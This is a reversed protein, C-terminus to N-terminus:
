AGFDAYFVPIGFARTSSAWNRAAAFAAVLDTPGGQQRQEALARYFGRAFATSYAQPVATQMAVVPVGTRKAIEQAVGSLDDSSTAVAAGHCAGLFVYRLSSVNRLYGALVSPPVTGTEQDRSAPIGSRVSPFLKLGRPTGHGLFHLAQIGENIADDRLQRTTCATYSTFLGRYTAGLGAQIESTHPGEEFRHNAAPLDASVFSIEGLPDSWILPKRARQARQHRLMVVCESVFDEGIRLYEWPVRAASKDLDLVVHQESQVTDWFADVVPEPAEGAFLLTQLADGLALLMERDWSVLLRRLDAISYRAVGVQLEEPLAASRSWIEDGAARLRLHGGRIVLRLGIPLAPASTAPSPRPVLPAPLHTPAPPTPLPAAAPPPRDTPPANLAHQALARLQEPVGPLYSVLREANELWVVIAPRGDALSLTNLAQLDSRVQDAPSAMAPLAAVARAPLWALLLSRRQPDSLGAKVALDFCANLERPGLM